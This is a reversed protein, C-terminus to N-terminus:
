RGAVEGLTPLRLVGRWYAEVTQLVRTYEAYTGPKVVYGSAHGEYSRQVDEPHESTSLVLVPISRLREDAKARRLFAHGDMVPMNLDLVVLDPRFDAGGTLFAWAEQGNEVHHVMIEEAVESLMEQFLAADALEDEVLLLTFPTNPM